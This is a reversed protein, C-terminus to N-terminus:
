TDSQWAEWTKYESILIGKGATFTTYYFKSGGGAEAVECGWPSILRRRPQAVGKPTPDKDDGHLLNLGRAVDRWRTVREISVMSSM